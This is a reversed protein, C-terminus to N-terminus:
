TKSALKWSFDMYSGTIWVNPSLSEPQFAFIEKM